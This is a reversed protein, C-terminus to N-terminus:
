FVPVVEFFGAVRFFLEFFNVILFAVVGKTTITGGEQFGLFGLVEGV